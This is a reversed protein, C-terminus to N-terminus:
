PFLVQVLHFVVLVVDQNSPWSSTEQTDLVLYEGWFLCLGLELLPPSHERKNQSGSPLPRDKSPGHPSCAIFCSTLFRQCVGKWGGM